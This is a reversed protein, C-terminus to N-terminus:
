SKVGSAWWQQTCPPNTTDPSQRTVDIPSTVSVVIPSTPTGVGRTRTGRKTTTLAQLGTIIHQIKNDQLGTLAQM